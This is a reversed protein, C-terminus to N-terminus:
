PTIGRAKVIDLAEEATFGAAKLTEFRNFLMKSIEAQVTELLERNAVLATIANRAAQANQEPSDM